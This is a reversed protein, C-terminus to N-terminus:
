DPPNLEDDDLALAYTSGIKPFARDIMRVFPGWSTSARMMGIIAYLHQQLAPHGIDHTLHQHHKHNRLGFENAPNIQQLEELMGPTLRSYILDNTYFAVVQFRNVKMGQWQWGKLRYMEEYFDDPFRKSWAAFEKKLYKDLHKQLDDRPRSDQHGTAEDILAIIGVKAVSIVFSEAAEAYRTFVEGDFVRMQRAKLIARASAVNLAGVERNAHSVATECAECVCEALLCFIVAM